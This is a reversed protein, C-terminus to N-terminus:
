VIAAQRLFECFSSAATGLEATLPLVIGFSRRLDM